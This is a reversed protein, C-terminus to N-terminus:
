ERSPGCGELWQIKEFASNVFEPEENATEVGAWIPRGVEIGPVRARQNEPDDSDIAM